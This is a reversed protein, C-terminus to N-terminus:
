FYYSIRTQVFDDRHLQYIINESDRAAFVWADFNLKINASLRTSIEVVLVRSGADNLDQTVGALVDTSAENNFAIRTGLFLDNQGIALSPDERSDYLYEGLAGVDWSTKLPSYFTYEFGGTAAVYDQHLPADFYRRIVELKLLTAGLTAQLDLGTQEILPYFPVLSISSFQETAIDTVQPVLLPERSTGRFWSLGADVLGISHSWRLAYDVHRYERDHQYQARDTDIALGTRLRGDTGSFTRERFWPLIFSELTGWDHILTYAVMPQGLKHEGGPSEVLDTQNIIDVLHQSEAVGWYKKAIGIQVEWNDGYTLWYLARIDQHSREDDASDLRVFAKFIFTHEANNLSWIFEPEAFLSLQHNAQSVSRQDFQASQYYERWDFAAHGTAEFQVALCPLAHFLLVVFGAATITKL